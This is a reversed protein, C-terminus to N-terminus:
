FVIQLTTTVLQNEASASPTATHYIDGAVLLLDIQQEVLTALLWTFFALHEHRRDYEYFQQGLHWDSTHLVKM